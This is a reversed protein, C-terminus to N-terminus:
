KLKNFSEAECDITFSENKTVNKVTITGDGKTVNWGEFMYLDNM